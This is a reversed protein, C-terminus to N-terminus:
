AANTNEKDVRVIIHGSSFCKCFMHILYHSITGKCLSNLTAARPQEHRKVILPFYLIKIPSLPIPFVRRLLTISSNCSFLSISAIVTTAGGSIPISARVIFSSCPAQKNNILRNIRNCIGPHHRLNNGAVVIIDKYRTFTDRCYWVPDPIYECQFAPWIM